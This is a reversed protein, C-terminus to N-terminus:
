HFWFIKGKEKEQHEKKEKITKIVVPLTRPLKITDKLLDEVKVFDKYFHSYIYQYKYPKYYRFDIRLRPYERGKQLDSIERNREIVKSANLIRPHRVRMLLDKLPAYYEPLGLLLKYIDHHEFYRRKIPLRTLYKAKLKRKLFLAKFFGVNDMIWEKLDKVAAKKHAKIYMWVLRGKGLKYAKDVRHQVYKM